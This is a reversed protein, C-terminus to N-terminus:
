RVLILRNLLNRAPFLGPIGRRLVAGTFTCAGVDIVALQAQAPGGGGFAACLILGIVVVRKARM